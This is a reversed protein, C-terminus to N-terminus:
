ILGVSLGLFTINEMFNCRPDKKLVTPTRHMAEDFLWNAEFFAM